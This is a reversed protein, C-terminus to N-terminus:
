GWMMLFMMPIGVLCVAGLSYSSITNKAMYILENKVCIDHHKRLQHVVDMTIRKSTYLEISLDDFSIPQKKIVGLAHELKNNVPNM